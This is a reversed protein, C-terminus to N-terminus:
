REREADIDWKFFPRFLILKADNKPHADKPLWKVAFKVEIADYNSLAEVAKWLAQQRASSPQVHGVLAIQSDTTGPVSNGEMLELVPDSVSWERKQVWKLLSM